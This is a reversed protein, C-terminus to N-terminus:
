TFSLFLLGLPAVSTPCARPPSGGSRKSPSIWHSVSVFVGARALSTHVTWSRATCCSDMRGGTTNFSPRDMWSWNLLSEEPDLKWECCSWFSVFAQFSLRIISFFASKRPGWLSDIYHIKTRHSFCFLVAAGGQRRKDTGGTNESLEQGIPWAVTPGASLQWDM